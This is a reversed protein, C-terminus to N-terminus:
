IRIGAEYMIIGKGAGPHFGAANRGATTSMGNGDIVATCTGIHGILAAIRNGYDIENGFCLDGVDRYSLFGVPDNQPQQLNRHEYAPDTKASKAGDGSNMM